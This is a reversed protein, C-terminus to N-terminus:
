SGGGSNYTLYSINKNIIQELLSHRINSISRNVDLIRKLFQTHVKEIESNEWNKWNLDVFPAWAECDFLLLPAIISDFFEILTEVTFFKHLITLFLSFVVRKAKNSLDVLSPVFSCNRGSITIRLYKLAKTFDLRENNISFNYDALVNRM